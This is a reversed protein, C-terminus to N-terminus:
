KKNKAFLPEKHRYFGYSKDWKKRDTIFFHDLKFEKGPRLEQGLFVKQTNQLMSLVFHAKMIFREYNLMITKRYIIDEKEKKDFEKSFYTFVANTSLLQYNNIAIGGKDAANVRFGHKYANLFDYDKQYDKVCEDLVMLYDAHKQDFNHIKEKEKLGFVYNDLFWTYFQKNFHKEVREKIKQNSIFLHELFAHERAAFILANIIFIELLQLYSLYFDTVYYLKKKPTKLTLIKNSANSLKNEWYGLDISQFYEVMFKKIDDNAM